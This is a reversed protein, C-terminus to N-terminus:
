NQRGLRGQSRRSAPPAPCARHDHKFKPPHSGPGTPFYTPSCCEIAKVSPDNLAQHITIRHRPNPNLMKLLVVMLQVCPYRHPQSIPGCKPYCHENIARGPNSRMFERWGEVFVKYDMHHETPMEWPFPVRGTMELAVMACGWVDVKRPDYDIPYYVEPSSYSPTGVGTGAPCLILQPSKSTKFEQCFGFDTLRLVSDGGLLLNGPKIDLHAIGQSHLSAVGRLLQKFLCLQEQPPFSRKELLDWLDGQDCYEMVYSLEDKRTCLDIVSVVNPHRARRTYDYEKRITYHRMAKTIGPHKFFEKVVYPNKDKSQRKYVIRTRGYSGKGLVKGRSSFICKRSKYSKKFDKVDQALEQALVDAESPESTLYEENLSLAEYYRSQSSASESPPMTLGQLHDGHQGSGNKPVLTSPLGSSM